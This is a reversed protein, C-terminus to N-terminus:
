HFEKSNNKIIMGVIDWTVCLGWTESNSRIIGYTHRDIWRVLRKHEYKYLGWLGIIMLLGNLSFMCGGFGSEEVVIKTHCTILNVWTYIFSRRRSVVLQPYWMQYYWSLWVIEQTGQSQQRQLYIQWTLSLKHQVLFWVTRM